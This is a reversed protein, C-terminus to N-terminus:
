KKADVSTRLDLRRLEEASLGRRRQVLELFMRPNLGPDKGVAAWILPGLHLVKEHLYLADLLDRPEERGVLALVKNVALDVPHLVHGVAELEVVPFFGWISDRAWEVLIAETGSRVQVRIYGPQSLLVAVEFGHNRLAKVDGDFAEAVSAETAHFFDVDHSYRLSEPSLHIGAAGALHSEASRNGALLRLIRTQLPTLPM